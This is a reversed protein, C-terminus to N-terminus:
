EVVDEREQERKKKKERESDQSCQKGEPPTCDSVLIHQKSFLAGGPEEPVAQMARPEGVTDLDDSESLHVLDGDEENKEKVNSLWAPTTPLDGELQRLKDFMRRADESRNRSKYLVGLYSYARKNEPYYETTKEFAKIASDFMELHNYAQGLYFYVQKRSSDQKLVNLFFEVAEKYLGMQLKILGLNYYVDPNNGALSRAKKLLKVARNYQGIEALTAGLNLLLNINDPEVQLGDQFHSVALHPNHMECQVFGLNALAKVHDPKLRLIEQYKGSAESYRGEGTLTKAESFLESIRASDDEGLKSGPMEDVGPDLMSRIRNIIRDILM